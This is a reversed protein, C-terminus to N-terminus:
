SSTKLNENLIRKLYRQYLVLSIIILGIGIFHLNEKAEKDLNVEYNPSNITKNEVQLGYTLIKKGSNLKEIRTKDIWFSATPNKADGFLEESKEKTLNRIIFDNDYNGLKIITNFDDRIGQRDFHYSMVIGDIKHLDSPSPVDQGWFRFFICMLGFSFAMLPLLLGILIFEGKKDFSANKFEKKTIIFRM